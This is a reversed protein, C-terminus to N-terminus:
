DGIFSVFPEPCDDLSFHPEAWPANRYTHYLLESAPDQFSRHKRRALDSLTRDTIRYARCVVSCKNPSGKGFLEYLYHAGIEGAKKTVEGIAIRRAEDNDRGLAINADLWYPDWGLNNVYCYCEGFGRVEPSVLVIKRRRELHHLVDRSICDRYNAYDLFIM